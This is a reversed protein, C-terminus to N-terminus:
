ANRGRKVAPIGLEARLRCIHSRSMGIATSIQSDNMGASNLRAIEVRRFKALERLRAAAPQDEFAARVRKLTRDDCGADTLRAIVQEALGQGPALGKDLHMKAAALRTRAEDLGKLRKAATTAFDAGEVRSVSLRSQRAM